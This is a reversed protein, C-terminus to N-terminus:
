PGLYVTKLAMLILGRTQAMLWANDKQLTVGCRCTYVFVEVINYTDNRVQSIWKELVESHTNEKNFPVKIPLFSQDAAGKMRKSGFKM